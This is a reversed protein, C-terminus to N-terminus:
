EAAGDLIGSRGSIAQETRDKEKLYEMYRKKWSRIAQYQRLGMGLWVSSVSIVIGLFIGLIYGFEDQSDLVRRFSSHLLLFTALVISPPAIVISSLSMGLFVKRATNVREVLEDIQMLVNGRTTAPPAKADHPKTDEPTM